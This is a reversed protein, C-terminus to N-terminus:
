NIWFEGKLEENDSDIEYKEDIIKNGEADEDFEDEVGDGGGNGEDDSAHVTEDVSSCDPDSDFGDNSDIQLQFNRENYVSKRRNKALLKNAECTRCSYSAEQAKSAAKLTIAEQSLAEVRHRESM